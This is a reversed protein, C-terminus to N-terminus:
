ILSEHNFETYIKKLAAKSTVIDEGLEKLFECADLFASFQSKNKGFYFSAGAPNNDEDKFNVCYRHLTYGRDNKTTGLSLGAVGTVNHKRATMKQM